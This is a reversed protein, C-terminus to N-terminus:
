ASAGDPTVEVKFESHDSSNADSDAREVSKVVGTWVKPAGFAINDTDLPQESCVARGRGVRTELWDVLERKELAQFGTLTVSDISQSSGLAVQREGGGPFIAKSESDVKGGERAMFVGCDRADVTLTVRAQKQTAM